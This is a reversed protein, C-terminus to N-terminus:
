IGFRRNFKRVERMTAQELSKRVFDGITMSKRRACWKVNDSLHSDIATFLQMKGGSRPITRITNLARAYKPHCSTCLTTCNQFCYKWDAIIRHVHLSKGCKELHDDNSIGCETCKNGDRERIAAKLKQLETM